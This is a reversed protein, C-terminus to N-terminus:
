FINEITFQFDLSYHKCYDILANTETMAETYDNEEVYIKIRSISIEVDKLGTHWIFVKLLKEKEHFKNHLNQLYDINQTTSINEQSNELMIQYTELDSVMVDFSTNVFNYELISGVILIAFIACVM